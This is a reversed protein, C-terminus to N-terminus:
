EVEDVQRMFDYRLDLYHSSLFLDWIITFEVSEGNHYRIGTHEDIILVFRDPNYRTRYLSGARSM